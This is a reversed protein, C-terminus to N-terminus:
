GSPIRAAWQQIELSIFKSIEAARWTIFILFKGLVCIKAWLIKLACTFLAAKKDRCIRMGGCSLRWSAGFLTYFSAIFELKIMFRLKQWYFKRWMVAM